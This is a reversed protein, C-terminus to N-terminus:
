IVIIGFEFDFDMTAGAGINSSEGFIDPFFQISTSIEGGKAADFDAFVIYFVGEGKRM